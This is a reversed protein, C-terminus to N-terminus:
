SLPCKLQPAKRVWPPARHVLGLFQLAERPGLSSLSSTVSRRLCFLWLRGLIGGVYRNANYVRISDDLLAVAFKNTHPHWAFVRM